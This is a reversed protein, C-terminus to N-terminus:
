GGPSAHATCAEVTQCRERRAAAAFLQEAVTEAAAAGPATVLFSATRQTTAGDHPDRWTGGVEVFFAPLGTLAPDDPAHGNTAEMGALM